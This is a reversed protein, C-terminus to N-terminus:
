FDRGEVFFGYLSTLYTVTFITVIWSVFQQLLTATFYAFGGNGAGVLTAVGGLLLGILLTSVLVIVGAVCLQLSNGVSKELATKMTFGSSGVAIAPLKLMLRYFLPIALLGAVAATLGGAVEAGLGLLVSLVSVVIVPPASAAIVLLLILLTNGFYRWVLGDLRLRTWGHPIDDKLIYRHWNVAISSFVFMSFIGLALYGLLVQANRAQTATDTAQPDIAPLISEVAFSLPVMIALWPWSVHWAFRINNAVSRLAHGLLGLVPLKRM